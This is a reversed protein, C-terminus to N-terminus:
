RPRALPRQPALAVAGKIFEAFRDRSRPEPFVHGMQFRLDMALPTIFSQLYLRTGPNGSQLDVAFRTHNALMTAGSSPAVLSWARRFEDIGSLRAVLDQYWPEQSRTRHQMKFIIVAQQTLAHWSETPTRQRMGHRPDFILELRHPRRKRFAKIQEATFGFLAFDLDNCDIIRGTYDALYSPHRFEEWFTTAVALAQQVEREEPLYGGALLLSSREEWSLDL